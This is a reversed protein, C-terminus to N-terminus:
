SRATSERLHEGSEHAPTRLFVFSQGLGLAVLQDRLSPSCGLVAIRNARTAADSVLAALADLGPQRVVSTERLDILIWDIMRRRLMLAMSELYPNTCRDLRRGVFLIATPPSTDAKAICARASVPDHTALAEM